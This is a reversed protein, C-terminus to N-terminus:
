FCRLKSVFELAFIISSILCGAIWIQFIGLLKEITLTIAPQAESLVTQVYKEDVHKSHWFNILGASQIIRIKDDISQRLIFNKPYYIVTGTTLFKEKCARLPLTRNFKLNNFNYYLYSGYSKAVTGKFSPERLKEIYLDEEALGIFKFKDKISQVQVFFDSYVPTVHIKFNREFTEDITQPEAHKRNSKMMEFMASQYVARLVLFQMLFMMLIFRAFTGKPLKPQAIGIIGRLINML